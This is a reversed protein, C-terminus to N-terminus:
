LIDHFKRDLLKKADEINVFRAEDVEDLQLDETPIEYSNNFYNEFEFDSLYYKFFWYHKIGAAKVVPNLEQVNIKDLFNNPLNIKLEESVERIAAMRLNEDNEIHGKPYSWVDFNTPHVILYKDNYVFVIGSSGYHNKLIENLKKEILNCIPNVGQAYANLNNCRFGVGGVYHLMLDKSINVGDKLLHLIQDDDFKMLNSTIPKLTNDNINSELLVKLFDKIM